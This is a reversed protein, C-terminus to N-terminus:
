LRGGWCRWIRHWAYFSIVFIMNRKDLFVDLTQTEQNYSRRINSSLTTRFRTTASRLSARSPSPCIAMKRVTTPPHSHRRHSQHEVVLLFQVQVLLNSRTSDVAGSARNCGRLPRQLHRQTLFSAWRTARKWREICSSALVQDIFWLQSGRGGKSSILKPGFEDLLRHALVDGDVFWERQIDVM